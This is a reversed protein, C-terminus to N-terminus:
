IGFALSSFGVEMDERWGGIAKTKVVEGALITFSRTVFGLTSYFGFTWALFSGGIAVNRILALFVRRLCCFASFLSLLLPFSFHFPIYLFLAIVFAYLSPGSKLLLFAFASHSTNSM